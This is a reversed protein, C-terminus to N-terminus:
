VPMKTLPNAAPSAGRERQLVCFRRGLAVCADGSVSPGFTPKIEVGSRLLGRALPPTMCSRSLIAALTRPRAWRCRTRRASYPLPWLWVARALQSLAPWGVSLGVAWKYYVLSRERRYALPGLITRYREIARLMCTCDVAINGHSLSDGRLHVICLPTSLFYAEGAALLRLWLDRDEATTLTTDFRNQQLLGRRAVVTTTTTSKAFGLLMPGGGRIPHGCWSPRPGTIEAPKNEAEQVIYRSAVFGVDPHQRLVQLCQDLKEPLWQDDADLFAVLDGHALEIGRNRAAAAGGRSQRVLTVRKGYRALVAALDEPSEDDIVLIEDAPYTQSLVSDVARCITAAARYAPMVVGVTLTKHKNPSNM